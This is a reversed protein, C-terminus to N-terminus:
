ALLLLGGIFEARKLDPGKLSRIAAEGLKSLSGLLAYCQANGEHSKKKDMAVKADGGIEYYTISKESRKMKQIIKFEEDEEFSILGLRIGKIVQKEMSRFALQGEETLDDVDIEYWNYLKELEKFASEESLEFEM